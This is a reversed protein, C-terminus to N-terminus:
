LAATVVTSNSTVLHFRDMCRGISRTLEFFINMSANNVEKQILYLSHWLILNRDNASAAAALLYPDGMAAPVLVWETQDAERGEAAHGALATEEM